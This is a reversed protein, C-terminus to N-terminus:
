KENKTWHYFYLYPCNLRKHLLKGIPKLVFRAPFGFLFSLVSSFVLVSILCKLCKQSSLPWNSILRYLFRVSFIFALIIKFHKKRKAVSHSYFCRVVEMSHSHCENTNALRSSSITIVRLNVLKKREHNLVPINPYNKNCMLWFM